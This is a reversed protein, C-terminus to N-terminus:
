APVEIPLGDRVWALIGGRLNYLKEYGQQQLYACAQSSRGGSQCYFVLPREKDLMSANFPLLHLPISRAGPISGRAVEAPTRVDVVLIDADSGGLLEHLDAAHLDQFVGM